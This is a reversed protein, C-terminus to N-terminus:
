GEENKRCEIVRINERGSLSVKLSKNEGKTYKRIKEQIVPSGGYNKQGKKPHHRLNFRREVGKIKKKKKKCSLRKTSSRGKPRGEVKKKQQRNKL